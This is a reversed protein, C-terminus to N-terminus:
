GLNSDSLPKQCRGERTRLLFASVFLPSPPGLGGEGKGIM